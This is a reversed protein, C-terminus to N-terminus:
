ARWVQGAPGLLRSLISDVIEYSTRGTDQGGVYTLDEEIPGVKVRERALSGGDVVDPRLTGAIARDSLACTAQVMAAPVDSSDLLYGDADFASFAPFHLAQEKSARYGPLRGRYESELFQTAERLAQERLTVDSEAAWNPMDGFKVHRADADAISAYSEADARGTGDEVVIAM